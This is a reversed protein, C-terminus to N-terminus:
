TVEAIISFVMYWFYSASTNTTTRRLSPILIDGESLSVNLGTEEMKSQINATINDTQTSGIQTLSTDGVSGYSPTGTSLALQYTQSSSAYGRMHYSKLTCNKPVVICPNKSDTWTTPPNTSTSITHGWLYFNAGYVNSPHYFRLYRTQFRGSWQPTWYSVGGGGGGALSAGNTIQVDNGADNTFYLNNPTDNKVWIQGRAGSDANASSQEKIKIPQEFRTETDKFLVTESDDMLININSGDSYIADNNNIDGFRVYGQDVKIDGTTSVDGTFDAGALNAKLNLATQQATSVPKNADTTNDVNNLSLSTKIETADKGELGNSTFVAIDGNAVTASDIKVINTNSIGTIAESKLNFIKSAKINSDRDQIVIKYAGLAINNPVAWAFSGNNDADYLQNHATGSALNTFKSNNKFVCIIVRSINGTSSWTINFSSDNVNIDTTANTITISKNTAVSFTNASIATNSGSSVKIKYDSAVAQNTPIVYDYYEGKYNSIITSLVGGKDLEINFSELSETRDWKVRIIEGQYFTLGSDSPYLNSIAKDQLTFIGSSQTTLNHSIRIRYTTGATLGTTDWDYEGDNTTSATLQIWNVGSDVSYFISVNSILGSTRWQIKVTEGIDIIDSPDPNLIQINNAITM